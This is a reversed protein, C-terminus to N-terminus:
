NEEKVFNIYYDIVDYETRYYRINEPPTYNVYERGKIEVGDFGLKLMEDKITKGAKTFERSDFNYEKLINQQFWIEWSNKTIFVKPNKPRANVVFYVTGFERALSKNSLAATYLGQGMVAMGGNEKGLERTGRYAVNKSKWKLFEKHEKISLM